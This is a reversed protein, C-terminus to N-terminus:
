VGLRRQEGCIEVVHTPAPLMNDNVKLTLREPRFKLSQAGPVLTPPRRGITWGWVIHIYPLM